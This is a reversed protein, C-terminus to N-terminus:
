ESVINIYEKELEQILKQVKIIILDYPINIRDWFDKGAVRLITKHNFTWSSLDFAACVIPTEHITLEKAVRESQSGTLTNKQTKLQQYEIKNTNRNRSILDIGKIKIDFESEPNISYPSISAISELLLGLKTSITRTANSAFALKYADSLEYINKAKTSKLQKYEKRLEEIIIPLFSNIKQDIELSLINTNNLLSNEKENEREVQLDIYDEIFTNIINSIEKSRELEDKISEYDKIESIIKIKRKIATLEILDRANM